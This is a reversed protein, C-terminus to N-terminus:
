RVFEISKGVRKITRVSELKPVDSMADGEGRTKYHVSIFGETSTAFGDFPVRDDIFYIDRHVLRDDSLLEYLAIMLFTGTGGFNVYLPALVFHGDKGTVDLVSVGKEKQGFDPVVVNVSSSMGEGNVQEDATYTGGLLTTGDVSYDDLLIDAMKKNPDGDIPVFVHTGVLRERMMVDSFVEEHSTQAGTDTLYVFRYTVYAFAGLLAIGVLSIIWKKM